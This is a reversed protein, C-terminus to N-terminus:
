RVAGVPLLLKGDLVDPGPPLSDVDADTAPQSCHSGDRGQEGGKKSTASSNQSSACWLRLHGGRYRTVCVRLRGSSLSAEPWGEGCFCVVLLEVEEERRETLLPCLWLCFGEACRGQQKQVDRM